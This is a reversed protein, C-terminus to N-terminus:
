CSALLFYTQESNKQKNSKSPVNVANMSSLFDVSTVFYYFDLNKKNQKNIFPDPDTCFIVSGPPGFPLFM